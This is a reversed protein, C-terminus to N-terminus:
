SVYQVLGLETVPTGLSANDAVFSSCKNWIFNSHNVFDQDCITFCPQIKHDIRENRWSYFYVECENQKAIFIPEM